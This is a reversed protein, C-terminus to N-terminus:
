GTCGHAIAVAGEALATDVLLKAMLPRSLATALPYQGEYLANAQLAPFLFYKVLLEKGDIVLAKVAGVDLAKKKVSSFDKENGVDITVAIVDLNYKEHLWKIAVSTDVGGSYALVVKDTV